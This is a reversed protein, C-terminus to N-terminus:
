VWLTPDESDNIVFLTTKKVNLKCLRRTGADNVRNILEDTGHHNIACLATDDAYCVNSLLYEPHRVETEHMVMETSISFLYPSLICGQRVGKGISFPETHWNNLQIRAEQKVYLSQILYVLHTSFGMQIMINFLQNHSVNDFAKSYDIFIIFATEKTEILKEIMIQLACIM